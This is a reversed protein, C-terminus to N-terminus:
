YPRPLVIYFAGWSESFPMNLLRILSRKGAATFCCVTLFIDCMFLSSNLNGIM